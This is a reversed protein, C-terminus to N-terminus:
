SPENQTPLELDSAITTTTDSVVEVDIPDEPSKATSIQNYESVLDRTARPGSSQPIGQPTVEPRYPRVKQYQKYMMEFNFRVIPDYEAIKRDFEAASCDFFDDDVYVKDGNEDIYSGDADLLSSSDEDEDEYDDFDDADEDDVWAERAAEEQHYQEWVNSVKRALTETFEEPNHSKVWNMFTRKDKRVMRELLRYGDPDDEEEAEEEYETDQSIPGRKAEWLRILYEEVGEDWMDLYDYAFSIFMDFHSMKKIANSIMIYDDNSLISDVNKKSPAPTAKPAAKREAIQELQESAETSSIIKQFAELFREGNIAINRKSHDPADNIINQVSDGIVSMMRRLEHNENKLDKQNHIITNLTECLEDLQSSKRSQSSKHRKVVETPDFRDFSTPMDDDVDEDEYPFYHNFKPGLLSSVDERYESPDDDLDDDLFRRGRNPSDYRAKKGSNMLVPRDLDIDPSRAAGYRDILDREYDLDADTYVDPRVYNEFENIIARTELDDDEDEDEFGHFEGTYEDYSYKKKKKGKNKAFEMLGRYKTKYPDNGGPSKFKKRFLKISKSYVESLRELQKREKKSSKGKKQLKKISKKLKAIDRLLLILECLRSYYYPQMMLSVFNKIGIRNVRILIQKDTSAKRIKSVYNDVKFIDYFLKDAEEIYIPSGSNNTALGKLKVVSMKLAYKQNPDM